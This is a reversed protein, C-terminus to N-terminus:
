YIQEINIYGSQAKTLLRQPVFKSTFYIEFKRNHEDGYASNMEIGLRDIVEICYMYDSKSTTTVRYRFTKNSKHQEKVIIEEADVYYHVNSSVTQKFKEVCVEFDKDTIKNVYNNLPLVDSRGWNSLVFYITVGEDFLRHAKQVNVKQM